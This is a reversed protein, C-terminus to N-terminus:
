DAPANRRRLVLVERDTATDTDWDPSGSWAEALRGDDDIAAVRGGPALRATLLSLVPLAPRMRRGTANIVILDYRSGPPGLDHWPLLAHPVDPRQLESIHLTGVGRTPLVDALVAAPDAEEVVDVVGGHEALGAAVWVSGAGLDVTLLRAPRLSRVLHLVRLTQDPTPDKEDLLVPEEPSYAAFLQLMAAQQRHARREAIELHQGLTQTLTDAVEAMRDQLADQMRLLDPALNPQEQARPGRSAAPRRGHQVALALVVFLIAINVGVLALHQIQALAAVIGLLASVAAGTLAVLSFKGLRRAHQRLRAAVAKM